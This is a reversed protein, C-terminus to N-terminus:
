LGRWAEPKFNSSHLASNVQELLIKKDRNLIGKLPVYNSAHNARFVCNELESNELMLKLELMVEYPSLLQFEGSDLRKEMPTEDIMLTLLAFYDPNIESIITASDIAHEKLLEKGGLGSIIMCSLAFGAAKAKKGATIMQERTLGKNVAKLVKDSGSEVGTYLLALGAERIKILDEPSKKLLDRPGAYSSIQKVKPFHTKIAKLLSLLRATSLCLVDGDALFIKEPNPAYHKGMLLHKEIEEDSKVTFKKGKYIRCFTCKNYSCGTTIQLILSGAESPPRYLPYDYM